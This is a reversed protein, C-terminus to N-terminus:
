LSDGRHRARLLEPQDDQQSGEDHVHQQAHPLTTFPDGNQGILWSIVFARFLLVRKNRTKTSEHCL